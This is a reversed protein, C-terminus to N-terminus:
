WGLIEFVQLRNAGKELVYIRGHGDLALDVPFFFQGTDTGFSGFEFLFTGDTRFVKVQHKFTDVIWIRDKEDICMGGPFSFEGEHLGRHGFSSVFQGTHDFIQIPIQKSDAGYMRGATDVDIGSIMQFRGEGEGKDGLQLQFDGDADYVLVRARERDVVYLKGAADSCIRGPRFPAGNPGYLDMLLEGRFDFLQLHNREMQSIYIRGESDVMIDLPAKLGAVSGMQFRPTGDAEFVDVHNNGTDAVYIEDQHTDYFVGMPTTFKEEESFGDILFLFRVPPHRLSDVTDPPATASSLSTLLILAQALKIIHM